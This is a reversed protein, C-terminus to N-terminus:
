GKRPLRVPVGSAATGEFTVHDVLADGVVTRNPRNRALELYAENTLVRRGFRNNIPHCAM